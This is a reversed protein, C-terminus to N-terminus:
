KVFQKIALVDYEKPDKDPLILAVARAGRARISKAYSCSEKRKDPDLWIVIRTKTELLYSMMESNVYSGLLAVANYGARAVALASLVDEVVVTTDSDKQIQFWLSARSQRVSLYKAETPDNSLRRGQWFCLEENKYVPMILRNLKPSYGFNYQTAEEVRVGYKALWALGTSPIESTFDEPLIVQKAITDTDPKQPLLETRKRITSICQRASPVGSTIVRATHCRHCWMKFGRETRTVVFGRSSVHENCFPCTDYRVPVGLEADLDM